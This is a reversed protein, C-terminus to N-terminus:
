PTQFKVIIFLSTLVYIAEKLGQRMQKIWDQMSNIGKDQSEM